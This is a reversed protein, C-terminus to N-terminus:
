RTKNAEQADVLIPLLINDRMWDAFNHTPENKPLPAFDINNVRTPDKPDSPIDKAVTTTAQTQPDYKLLSGNPTSVYNPYGNDKANDKDTKSFDNNVYKPDYDGHTHIHAVDERTIGSGSNESHSTTGKNPESYSYSIKGDSGEVKYITAAYEVKNAGPVMGDRDTFRIPDDFAYAYPSFRRMSDALPDIGHWTGLQPDQFSKGIM